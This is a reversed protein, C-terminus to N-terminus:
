SCYIMLQIVDSNLKIEAGISKDADLNGQTALAQLQEERNKSAEVEKDINEIEKDTKANAIEIAKQSFDRLANLQDQLM